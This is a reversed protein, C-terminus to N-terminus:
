QNKTLIILLTSYILKKKLKTLLNYDNYKIFMQTLTKKISLNTVCNTTLGSLNVYGLLVSITKLLSIGM